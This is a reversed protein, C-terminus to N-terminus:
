ENGKGRHELLANQLFHAYEQKERMTLRRHRSSWDDQAIQMTGYSRFCADSIVVAAVKSARGGICLIQQMLLSNEEVARVFTRSGDFFIQELDIYIWKLGTLKGLTQKLAQSSAPESGINVYQIRLRLSRIRPVWSVTKGFVTKGFKVFVRLSDFSFINTGYCIIKAADYIQRCTRLFRLDLTLRPRICGSKDCFHQISYCREHRNACVEDFWPSTSADFSAQADDETIRSVCMVHCFKNQPKRFNPDLKLHLLNGGCVLKYIQDQIEQPLKLLFSQCNRETSEDTLILVVRSILLASMCRQKAM